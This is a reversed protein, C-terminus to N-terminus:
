RLLVADSLSASECAAIGIMLATVLTVFSDMVEEGRRIGPLCEDRLPRIALTQSVSTGHM